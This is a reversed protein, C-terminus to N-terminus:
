ALLDNKLRRMHSNISIFNNLLKRTSLYQIKKYDKNFIHNGIQNSKTWFNITNLRSKTDLDNISRISIKVLIEELVQPHGFGKAECWTLSLSAERHVLSPRAEHHM